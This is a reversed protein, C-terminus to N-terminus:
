VFVEEGLVTKSLDNMWESLTDKSRLFQMFVREDSRAEKVCYKKDTIQIGVTTDVKPMPLETNDPLGIFEGHKLAALQMAIEPWLGSESSKYDGLTLGWQPKKGSYFMLDGTGAYGYQRNYVTFETASFEVEFDEVFKLFQNAHGQYITPVDPLTATGLALREFWDHVDTGINAKRNLERWPAGKLLELAVEECKKAPIDELKLVREDLALAMVALKDAYPVKKLEIEKLALQDVYNRVRASKDEFGM